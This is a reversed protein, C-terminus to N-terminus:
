TFIVVPFTRNAPAPAYRNYWNYLSRETPFKIKKRVWWVPVKNDAGPTPDVWIENGKEDNVIVFVHYPTRQDIRYSAFCYEWNIKTGTNREIAGLCGAIFSAYHKCDGYGRVLVGTPLATTQLDKSEERYRINNKCFAFLNECTDSITNGDFLYGINDYYGKFQVHSDFMTRIIDKVEQDDVVTEWEDRYEPLHQLVFYKDV